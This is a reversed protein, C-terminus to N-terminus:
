AEHACHRLWRAHPNAALRRGDLAHVLHALLDRRRQLVDTRVRARVRRRVRWARVGVLQRAARAGVERCPNEWTHFRRPTRAHPIGPSRSASRTGKNTPRGSVGAARRGAQGGAQGRLGRVDARADVGPRVVGHLHGDDLDALSGDRAAGGLRSLDQLGDPAAGSRQAASCQKSGTSRASHARAKPQPSHRNATDRAAANSCRPIHM